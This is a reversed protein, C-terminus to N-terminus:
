ILLMTYNDTGGPLYTPVNMYTGNKSFNKQRRTM